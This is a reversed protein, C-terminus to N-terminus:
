HILKGLEIAKDYCAQMGDSVASRLGASEMVDLAAATTGGPSTVENRLQVPHSNRSELYAASGKVTQLVCSTAETRPMGLRVAADIMAEIFLYVYAPGSGSVATIVNLMSESAVETASGIANLLDRVFQKQDELVEPAAYWGCFGERVAAPTNPMIRVVRNHNLKRSIIEIPIGAVISLILTSDPLNKGLANLVPDLYQPKVALLVAESNKAAESISGAGNVGTERIVKGMKDQNVDYILLQDAKVVGAEIVGKLIAEGMMGVGIIALKYNM